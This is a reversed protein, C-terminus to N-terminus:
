AFINPGGIQFFLTLYALKSNAGDSFMIYLQNCHESTTKLSCQGPGDSILKRLNLNSLNNKSPALIQMRCRWRQVNAAVLNFFVKLTWTSWPGLQVPDLNAQPYSNPHTCTPVPGLQNQRLHGEPFVSDSNARDLIPSLSVPVVKATCRPWFCIILSSVANM